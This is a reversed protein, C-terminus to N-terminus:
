RRIPWLVPVVGSGAESHKEHCLNTLRSGNSLGVRAAGNVASLHTVTHFCSAERFCIDHLKTLLHIEFPEEDYAATVHWFKWRQRCTEYFRCLVRMVSLNAVFDCVTM